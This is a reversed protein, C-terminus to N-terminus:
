APDFFRAISEAFAPQDAPRDLSARAAALRAPGLDAAMEETLAAIFAPSMEPHHQTTYVHHAIAFGTCPTGAAETLAIAAPPLVTVQEAHSGYLRCPDPLEAMWPARAIVRNETLGHVWGGPNHDVAGGLALAIAQHGFCAGFLPLRAAEIRRILALLRAIWPAEGRASAPSGTIMVGDFGALSEPFVGDRVWYPLVEWSPRVLHVLDRFKVDDLPHRHAFASDDTNTVLLALRKPDRM